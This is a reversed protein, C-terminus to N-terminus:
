GGVGPGYSALAVLLQPAFALLLALILVEIPGINM